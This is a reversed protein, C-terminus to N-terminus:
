QFDMDSPTDRWPQFSVGNEPRPLTRKTSPTISSPLPTKVPIVHVPTKGLDFKSTRSSAIRESPWSKKAPTVNGTCSEYQEQILPPQPPVTTPSELRSLISADSFSVEM